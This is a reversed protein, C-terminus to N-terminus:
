LITGGISATSRLPLPDVFVGTLWAQSYRLAPVNPIAVNQVHLGQGDTVGVSWIGWDNGSGIWLPEAALPTNWRAIGTSIVVLVLANPAERFAAQSAGGVTWNRQNWEATALLRTTTPLQPSAITTSWLTVSGTGTLGSSGAAGINLVCNALTGPGWLMLAAASGPNAGSSSAIATREARLSGVVFVGNQASPPFVSALTPAGQLSCDIFTADGLVVNPLHSGHVTTRELWCQNLTAGFTGVGLAMCTCDFAQLNGVVLIRGPVFGPSTPSPANVVDLNSLRLKRVTAGAPAEIPGEVTARPNGVITLDKDIVSFGSYLGNAVVLTAGSPAGAVANALAAGGGSVAIVVQARLPAAGLLLGALVALGLRRGTRCVDQHCM